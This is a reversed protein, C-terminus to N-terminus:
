ITYALSELITYKKLMLNCFLRGVVKVFNSSHAVFMRYQRGYNEREGNMIVLESLNWTRIKYKKSKGKM